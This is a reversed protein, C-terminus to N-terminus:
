ICIGEKNLHKKLKNRTRMLSVAVASEKMKMMEAIESLQCGYWYRRLFIARPKDDLSALFRNLADTLAISDGISECDSRDPICEGLEEIALEIQGSRKQANYRDYRDLARQRSIRGVYPKLPDPENPPISNWTKIYTDNVIEEADCENRLISFAIYHCYKGYKKDTEAIASEDRALYLSIIEKDNM